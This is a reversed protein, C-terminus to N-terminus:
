GTNDRFEHEIESEYTLAVKLAIDPIQYAAGFVYGLRYDKNVSLAYAPPLPLGQTIINVNGELSQVRLGGYASIRDTFDYKLLGTLARSDVEASSGSFPYPTGAAYFVDAGVPENGILAFALKDNIQRKYGFEFNQYSQHINGSGLAGGGVTGSIDPHVTAVSFEFYNKGDEFLIQSRDGDRQLGGAQAMGASVLLTTATLLNIKM